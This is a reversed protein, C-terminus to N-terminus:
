FSRLIYQALSSIFLYRNSSCLCKNKTINCTIQNKVFCQDNNNCFGGYGSKSACNFGNWYNDDRCKCVGDNCVFNKGDICYSVNGMCSELYNKKNFCGKLYYQNASCMCLGGNCILNLKSLCSRSTCSENYFGPRNAFTIYLDAAILIMLATFLYLFIVVKWKSILMFRSCNGSSSDKSSLQFISQLKGKKSYKKWLIVPQNTNKAM